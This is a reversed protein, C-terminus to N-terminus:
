GAWSDRSVVRGRPAVLSIAPFFIIPLLFILIYMLSATIGWFRVSPKGKLITWWAVGTITAVFVRFLVEILLNRLPLFAYHQSIAYISRLSFLPYVVSTSAFIWSLVKRIDQM